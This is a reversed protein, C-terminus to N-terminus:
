GFKGNYYTNGRFKNAVIYTSTAQDEELHRFVEKEDDAALVHSRGNFSPRKQVRGTERIRPLARRRRRISRLVPNGYVIREYVFGHHEGLLQTIM